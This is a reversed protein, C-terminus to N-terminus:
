YWYKVMGTLAFLDSHGPKVMTYRAMAGLSLMSDGAPFYKLPLDFGALPAMALTSKGNDIVAGLGLGVYSERLVPLTGGFNYTGKGLVTLRNLDDSEGRGDAFTQDIELGVGFPIYPQYGIDVGYHMGPLHGGDGLAAGFMGGVHPKLESAYQVPRATPLVQGAPLTTTNNVAWAYVPVLMLICLLQRM